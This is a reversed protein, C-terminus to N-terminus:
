YFSRFNRWHRKWKLAGMCNEDGHITGTTNINFGHEDV